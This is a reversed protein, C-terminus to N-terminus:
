GVDQLKRYLSALSVGLRRAAERKDHRSRRLVDEIHRREFERVAERLSHDIRERRLHPPLDAVRIVPGDVVLMAGEIVHALERVNGPWDYELILDRAEADMERVDRGLQANFRAIFHAVLAPVDDRRERLAPLSVHAVDLRYSLDQRFRRALVEERLDRNTSALVRVDVPVPRTAGVPWVAKAEIARLLKAQLGLPLEGVEDLLLTGQAAAQFLGPNGRVADTFAGRVHGFVQSEFLAEAIAACNVVVFPGARRPSAAHIARAVLEKGTGSEGTILVQSSMPGSRAIFRRVATIAESTGIIPHGDDAPAPRHAPRLTGRQELVHQVRATLEDLRFPKRVYDAAGRRLAEVATEVTPYATIIVVAPARDLTAAKRVLALGDADPLVLDTVVIDFPEADMLALGEGGTGTTRVRWRRERFRWELTERITREDDVVLITPTM